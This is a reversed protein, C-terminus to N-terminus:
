LKEAAQIAALQKKQRLFQKIQSQERVLAPSSARV